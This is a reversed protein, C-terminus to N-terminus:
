LTWLPWKAQRSLIHAGLMLSPVKAIVKKADNMRLLLAGNHEGDVLKELQVCFRSGIM